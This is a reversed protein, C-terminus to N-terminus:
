KKAGFLKGALSLIDDLASGDKNMDLLTNHTSMM